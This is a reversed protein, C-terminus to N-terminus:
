TVFGTLLLRGFHPISAHLALEDSVADMNLACSTDPVAKSSVGVRVSIYLFGSRFQKEVKPNMHTTPHWPFTRLSLKCCHVQEKYL